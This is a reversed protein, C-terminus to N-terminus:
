PLEGINLLYEEFKSRIILYKNGHRVAFNGINESALKYLKKIGISFYGSAEKITLTYKENLPVMAVVELDQRSIVNGVATNERGRAM